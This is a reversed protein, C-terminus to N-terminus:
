IMENHLFSLNKGSLLLLVVKDRLRLYTFMMSIIKQVFACDFNTIDEGDVGLDLLCFSPFARSFRCHAIPIQRLKIPNFRQVVIIKCWSLAVPQTLLVLLFVLHLLQDM